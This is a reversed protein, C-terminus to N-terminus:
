TSRVSRTRASRTRGRTSRRRRVALLAPRDLEGTGSPGAATGIGQENGRATSGLKSISLLRRVWQEVQVGVEEQSGVGLVEDVEQSCSPSNSAPPVVLPHPHDPRDRGVEEADDLERQLLHAERTRPEVHGALHHVVLLYLSVVSAEKVKPGFRGEEHRQPRDRHDVEDRQRHTETPTQASAAEM